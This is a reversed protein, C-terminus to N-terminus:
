RPANDVEAENIEADISRARKDITNATGEYREDFSPRDRCAGLALVLTLLMIASWRM